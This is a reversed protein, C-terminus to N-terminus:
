NVCSSGHSPLDGPPSVSAGHLPEGWVESFLVRMREVSIRLRLCRRSFKRSQADHQFEWMAGAFGRWRTLQGVAAVFRRDIALLESSGFLRLWQAQPYLTLRLVTEHYREPPVDFHRCFKEQFTEASVSEPTLNPM